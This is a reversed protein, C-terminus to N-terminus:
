RTMFIALSGGAVLLRKALLVGGGCPSFAASGAGVSRDIASPKLNHMGGGRGGM